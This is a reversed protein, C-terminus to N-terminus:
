RGAERDAAALAALVRRHSSFAIPGPPADPPWFGVAAADDGALLEGGLETAAYVILIVPRDPPLVGQHVALLGDIRVDLGTEERTERRAAEDPAEDYEIFGAPLTWEGAKPAFKRQVLCVLNGRRIVAAAAPSPNLYQVFGCASCSPRGVGGEDGVALPQRCQPCYRFAHRLPGSM